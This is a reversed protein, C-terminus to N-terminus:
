SVGSSRVYLVFNKVAENSYDITLHYIYKSEILEKLEKEGGLIKDNTLVIVRSPICHAIGGFQIKLSRWVDPWEVSNVGPFKFIV